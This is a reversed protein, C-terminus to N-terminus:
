QSFSLYWDAFTTFWDMAPLYHFGLVILTWTGTALVWPLRIRGKRFEHVLMVLGVAVPLWLALPFGLLEIGTEQGIRSLLRGTGPVIFILVTTAMYRAHLQMDKRHIIALSYFLAYFLASSVGLWFFSLGIPPYPKPLGLLNDQVVYLASIVMLPAVVFSFRGILRHIHRRRTHILWPQVILMLMWGLMVFSHFHQAFTAKSAAPSFYSPWFGLFIVVLILAFWYHANKYM